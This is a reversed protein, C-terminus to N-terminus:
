FTTEVQHHSIFRFFRSFIEGVVKQPFGEFTSEFGAGFWGRGIMTPWGLPEGVGGFVPEGAGAADIGCGAVGGGFAPEVGCM